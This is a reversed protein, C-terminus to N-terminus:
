SWGNGSRVGAWCRRGDPRSCCRVTLAPTVASAAFGLVFQAFPQDRLILERRLFIAMGVAFLPLPVTTAPVTWAVWVDVVHGPLLPDILNTRGIETGGHRRIASTFVRGARRSGGPRGSQGGHGPSARDHRTDIIHDLRSLVGYPDKDVPEITFFDLFGTVKSRIDM